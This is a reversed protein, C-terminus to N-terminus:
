GLGGDSSSSTHVMVAGRVARALWRLLLLGWVVVLLYTGDWWRASDGSVVLLLLWVRGGRAVLGLGGDSSSSTHIVAV